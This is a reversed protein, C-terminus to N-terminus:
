LSWWRAGEQRAQRVHEVWQPLRRGIERVVNVDVQQRSELMAFIYLLRV